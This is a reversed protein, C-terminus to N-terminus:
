LDRLCFPAATLLACVAVMIWVDGICYPVICLGAGAIAPILKAAKKAYVIFGVGISGFLMSLMITTTDFEM